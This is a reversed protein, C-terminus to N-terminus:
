VWLLFFCVCVTFRKTQRSRSEWHSLACESEKRWSSNGLHANRSPQTISARTCPQSGIETTLGVTSRKSCSLPSPGVPVIHM